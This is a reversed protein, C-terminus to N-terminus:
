RRVAAGDDQPRDIRHPPQSRWALVILWSIWALLLAYSGLIATTNEDDFGHLGLVWGQVLFPVSSTAVLVGLVRPLSRSLAAAAGLLLLALGLAFAHYSHAGWELWRVAEAAAFRADKQEAPANEWAEVAHKLAVGDVAQLVGYLGLAIAACVAGFRAIGAAVGGTAALLPRLVLLGAVILAMGAFQGLHVGAWDHSGAYDAFIAPHDNAPGATHLLTVGVYTSFGIGLLGAAPRLSTSNM